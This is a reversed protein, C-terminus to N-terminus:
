PKLKNCATGTGVWNDALSTPITPSSGVRGRPWWIKLRVRRGIGDYGWLHPKQDSNRLVRVCFRMKLTACGESAADGFLECKRSYRQWWRVQTNKAGWELGNTEKPTCRGTHKQSVCLRKIEKRIIKLASKRLCVWSFGQYVAIFSNNYKDPM